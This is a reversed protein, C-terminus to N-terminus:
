MDTIDQTTSDICVTIVIPTVPYEKLIQLCYENMRLYFKMNVTHQIKVLIIPPIDRDRHSIPVHVVDSKMLNAWETSVVIYKEKAHEGVYLTQTLINHLFFRFSLYKGIFHSSFINAIESKSLTLKSM